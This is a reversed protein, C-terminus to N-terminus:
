LDNLIAIAFDGVEWKLSFIHEAQTGPTLFKEILEQSPEAEMGEIKGASHVSLFLANKGKKTQIIVPHIRGFKPPNFNKMSTEIDDIRGMGQPEPQFNMTPCYCVKIQLAKKQLGPTLLEYAKISSCFLTEGGKNPVIVAYMASMVPPTDSISDIGM